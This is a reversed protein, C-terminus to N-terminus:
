SSEPPLAGHRQFVTHLSEGMLARDRVTAGLLMMVEFNRFIGFHEGCFVVVKDRNRMELQRRFRAIGTDEGKFAAEEAQEKYSRFASVLGM